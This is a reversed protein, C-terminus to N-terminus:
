QSAEVMAQVAQRVEEDSLQSFGGKAPMMGADGQYGDVAHGVMQDMGQAIRPAWAEIDGVIPAGGVGSAHCIACYQDFVPKGAAGAMSGGTAVPESKPEPVYAPAESTIKIDAPNRCKKMCHKNTVDPRADPIFNGENPLRISSLNEQTLVFDDEVLDNLYLVYATLAYVEDDGLSEPQTFPMARHIYDWLTSTYKWYSGVTKHPRDDRLSGEGGALTPYKGVGEGFSGHCEACKEEYLYEGDEVSGSGPPLGKGDPRVDIDWGAIQEPTAKLGYGYYGTKDAAVVASSALLCATLSLAITLTRPLRNASRSMACGGM